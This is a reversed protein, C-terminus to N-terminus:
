RSFVVSIAIALVLVGALVNLIRTLPNKNVMYSELHWWALNDKPPTIARKFCTYALWAAWVLILSNRFIHQAPQNM